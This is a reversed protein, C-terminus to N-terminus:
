RGRAEQSAGAPAGEALHFYVLTTAIAPFPTILTNVVASGIWSGVVDAGLLRLGEVLVVSAVVTLGFLLVLLGFVQFGRGTVMRHSRAFSERVTLGEIVLAPALLSWRTALYLGPIIVCATGVAIGAGALAGAPLLAGLTPRLRRMTEGLSPADRGARAADTVLALPGQIWAYGILIVAFVAFSTVITADGGAATHEILSFVGGLVLFVVGAVAVFRVFFRTYLSWAQGLIAAIDM